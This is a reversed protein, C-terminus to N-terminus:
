TKPVRFGAWLRKSDEHRSKFEGFVNKHLKLRTFITALESKLIKAKGNDDKAAIM